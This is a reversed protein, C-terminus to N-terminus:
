DESVFENDGLEEEEEDDDDDGHSQQGKGKIKMFYYALAVGGLVGVIAFLTIFSRVLPNMGGAPEPPPEPTPTPEPTAEPPPPTPEPPPPPEAVLGAEQAMSMLDLENAPALLYVNNHTRNRDVILHFWNHNPTTITFFEINATSLYNDIIMSDGEPTIVTPGLNAPPTIMVVNSRGGAFDVAYVSITRETAVYEGVDLILLSDVRHNFRRENIYISEVEYFGASATVRLLRGVLEAQVVPPAVNLPQQTQPIGDTIPLVEQVIEMGEDENDEAFALYPTLFLSICLLLGTLLVQKTRKGVM